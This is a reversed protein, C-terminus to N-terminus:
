VRGSTLAAAKEALIEMAEALKELEEQSLSEVLADLWRRQAGTSDKLLERGKDTLTLKKNRRDEPDEQRLILGQGVLRDLMQSAAANTVGLERAIDSINCEGRHYIYRMAFMQPMTLGQKKIYKWFSRMSVQILQGMAAQFSALFSDKTTM